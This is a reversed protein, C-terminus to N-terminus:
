KAILKRYLELLVRTREQEPTVSNYRRAREDHLQLKQLESWIRPLLKLHGRRALAERVRNLDPTKLTYLARAYQTALEM